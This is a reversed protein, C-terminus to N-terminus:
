VSPWNKCTASSQATRRPHIIRQGTDTPDACRQCRVRGHDWSIAFDERSVTDKSRMEVNTEAHPPEPCLSEEEEPVEDDEASVVPLARARVSSKFDFLATSTALATARGGFWCSPGTVKCASALSCSIKLRALKRGEPLSEALM